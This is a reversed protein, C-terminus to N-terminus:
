VPAARGSRLLAFLRGDICVLGLGIIAMGAVAKLTIPEALFAWGLLLASVPQLLAVLSMNVAGARGIVRFFLIYALATGILAIALLSGWVTPSPSTLTWPKDVLLMVPLIVLAGMTVQGTAVKLPPLGTFTRAYVGSFAYCVAAALCILEGVFDGNGLGKVADGGILVAVGLAGLTVGAGRSWRFKEDHTFLHATLTTMMPVSAHLLAAMGGTIRMESYAILTFPAANNLTSLLAFRGWVRLPFNMREGQFLLFLHLTLAAIALRGFVITPPGLEQVMVRYFFFSAGWILSLAVLIAWEGAGM